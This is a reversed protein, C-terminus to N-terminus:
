VDECAVCAAFALPLSRGQDFKGGIYSIHGLLILRRGGVVPRAEPNPQFNSVEKKANPHTPNYQISRIASTKLQTYNDHNNM